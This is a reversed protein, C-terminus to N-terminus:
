DDKRARAQPAPGELEVIKGQKIKFLRKPHAARTKLLQAQLNKSQTRQRKTLDPRIFVSYYESEEPLDRLQAAKSLIEKRQLANALTICLTRPKEADVKGLRKTTTVEADIDLETNIMTEVSTADDTEIDEKLGNIILNLKKTERQQLERFIEDHDLTDPTKDLQTQLHAVKENLQEIETTIEQNTTTQKKQHKELSCIRKDFKKMYEACRDEIEKDTHIATLAKEKCPHCFWSADSARLVEIHEGSCKCCKSCFCSKCRECTLYM